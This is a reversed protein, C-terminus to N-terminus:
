QGLHDMYKAIGDEDQPHVCNNTHFLSLNEVHRIAGGPEMTYLPSMTEMALYDGNLYTEFSSGYDPYAASSHVFRKVLTTQPTIYASWGLVNNLGIKLPKQISSDHRLTIFRNGIFLRPDQPDTYPWLTLVRNPLLENEDPRNQPIVELGGGNLMTIPWLALTQREKAFNMVSHVLMIDASDRGMVVELRTQVENHAQKASSFTVGDSLLAYIVPDNDPFYSQPMREPALWLRHGGYLHCAAGKGYYYDMDENQTCYVRDLDNYLINDGDVFGFRVIRPGCDITVVVDVVGNSLQVCKGYNEYTIEKLEM